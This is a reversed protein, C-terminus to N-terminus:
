KVYAISETLYQEWPYTEEKRELNWADRIGQCIRLLKNQMIESQFLEGNDPQMAQLFISSRDEVASTMSAENVFARSGGSLLNADATGYAFGEPNLTDWTDFKSCNGLVHSDLIYALGRMFDTRVDVGASLVIYADDKDWFQVSKVEDNVSRVICIRIRSSISKQLFNKPFEALVSELEDLVKHIAPTQYETALAFEGTTKVAEDWIRIRVGHTKNLDSARDECAELGLTDPSSATFLTDTYIADEEVASEKINWRLLQQGPSESVSTIMWVCGSWRDAYFLSPEAVNEITVAATRRGSSLDYFSLNLGSDEVTYALVGNLEPVGYFAPADVNLQLMLDDKSGVIKQQIIGDTRLAVFTNEYTNLQTIHNDTNTTEGTKSSVYITNVVGKGDEVRCSLLAGEFFCDQLELSKFSHTKILRSIKREVEFARIEQGACYFVENGDPSFLPLGQMDDPLVLRDTEQLQPSLFIAQNEAEDYYAFGNYLARYSGALLDADISIEASSVCEAGTLLTLTATEGESILLLQDGIASLARYGESPLAYLRVAGGTQIEQASGPVYLGAPQTPETSVTAGNEPEVSACGTLLLAFLLLLAIHKKM